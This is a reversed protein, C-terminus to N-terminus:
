SALLCHGQKWGEVWELEAPYTKGERAEAQPPSGPPLPDEDLSVEGLMNATVHASGDLGLPKIPDDVVQIDAHEGTVGGRITTM